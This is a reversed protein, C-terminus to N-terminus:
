GYMGEVFWKGEERVLRYLGGGELEVEWEERDWGDPEWWGGSSRWPGRTGVIAGRASRSSLYAPSGQVWDVRAPLPPRMRRLPLGWLRKPSDIDQVAPVVEPMREMRFADPRYSNRLRPTGVRDSGVVGVLRALSAFFQEPNNLTTEFLGLQRIHPQAAKMRLSVAVIPSETRVNELHTDLMRFLTEVRRTPQPVKFIRRYRSGDYLRLRLYIADVVKHAVKLRLSLQELFRRLIFLLPELTEIEYELELSEEFREPFNAGQLPRKARGTANDWLLLGEPGLRKGVEERPLSTFAGVTQIGWKRLIEKLLPSPDAAELPLRNLFTKPERVELVPEARRAAYRALAPTRSFGIRTRIGMSELQEFLVEGRKGYSGKRISAGSLDVTCCGAGTVEVKPSLSCACTFLAKLASKEADDSRSRASVTPSRAVAQTVAMGVAIGAERAAASLQMVVSKRSAEGVLIVPKESLGEEMRVVSQLAFDPVEIVCYM